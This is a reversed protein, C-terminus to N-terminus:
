PRTLRWVEYGGITEVLQGGMRAFARKSAENKPHVNGEVEYGGMWGLEALDAFMAEYAEAAYGNGRASHDCAILHVFVQNCDDLLVYTIVARLVDGDFGLLVREPLQRPVRLKHIAAQVDYEWQQPHYRGRKPEYILKPPDTCIFAQLAPRHAKEAECWRLQV